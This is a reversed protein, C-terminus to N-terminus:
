VKHLYTRGCVDRHLKTRLKKGFYIETEGWINHGKKGYTVEPLIIGICKWFHQRRFPHVLRKKEGSKDICNKEGVAEKMKEMQKVWDGPWLKILHKLYIYRYLGEQIVGGEEEKFLKYGFGHLGIAKYQDKEETINDKVCTWFSKGGEPHPVSAM